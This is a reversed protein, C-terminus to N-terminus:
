GIIVSCEIKSFSNKLRAISFEAGAAIARLFLVLLVLLLWCCRGDNDVMPMRWSGGTPSGGGDERLTLLSTLSVGVGSGFELFWDTTVVPVFLLFLFLFSFSGASRCRRSSGTREKLGLGLGQGTELRGDSPLGDSPCYM